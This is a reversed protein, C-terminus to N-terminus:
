FTSHRNMESYLDLFKTCGSAVKISPHGYYAEGNIMGLGIPDSCAITMHNETQKGLDCTSYTHPGMTSM